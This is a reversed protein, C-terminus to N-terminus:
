QKQYLGILTYQDLVKGSLTSLVTDKTAGPALALIDSIAYVSFRYRHTGYPPCPGQYRSTGSSNNGQVGGAPVSGEAIETTDPPINWVVWHDWVGAPADPDDVVLVLSKTGVPVGQITLPPNIEDGQCTYKAPIPAQSAFATSSLLLSGMSNGTALSNAIQEQQKKQNSRYVLFASMVVLVLLLAASFM